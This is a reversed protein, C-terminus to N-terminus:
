VKLRDFLLEGASRKILVSANEIMPKVRNIGWLDILERISPKDRDIGAFLRMVRAGLEPREKWTEAMYRTSHKYFPQRTFFLYYLGFNLLNVREYGKKAFRAYNRNAIAVSIKSNASWDFNEGLYRAQETALTMGQGGYPTTVAVADGALLFRGKACGHFTTTNALSGV